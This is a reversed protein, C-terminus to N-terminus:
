EHKYSQLKQFSICSIMCLYLYKEFGGFRVHQNLFFLLKLRVKSQRNMFMDNLKCLCLIYLAYVYRKALPFPVYLFFFM